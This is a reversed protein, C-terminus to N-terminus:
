VQLLIDKVMKLNALISSIAPRHGRSVLMTYFRQKGMTPRAFILQTTAGAVKYLTTYYFHLVYYCIGFGQSWTHAQITFVLHISVKKQNFTFYSYNFYSWQGHWLLDVPISTGHYHMFMDVVENRCHPKRCHKGKLHVVSLPLCQRCGM